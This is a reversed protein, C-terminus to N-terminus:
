LVPPFSQEPLLSFLLPHQYQEECLEFESAQKASRAGGDVVTPLALMRFCERRKAPGIRRPIPRRAPPQGRVTRPRPLRNLPVSKLELQHWQRSSPIQPQHEISQHVRNLHSKLGRRRQKSRRSQAQAPSTDRSPTDAQTEDFPINESPAKM